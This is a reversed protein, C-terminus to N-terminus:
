KFEFTGFVESVASTPKQLEFIFLWPTGPASPSIYIVRESDEYAVSSAANAISFPATAKKCNPCDKSGINDWYDQPSYGRAGEYSIALTHTKIADGVKEAVYLSEGGPRSTVSFDSTPFDFEYSIRETEEFYSTVTGVYTTIQEASVPAEDNSQSQDPAVYAVDKTTFLYFLLGAAGLAICIGVVVGIFGRKM